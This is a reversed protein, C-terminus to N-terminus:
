VFKLFYLTGSQQSERISRKSSLSPIFSPSDIRNKNEFESKLVFCKYM